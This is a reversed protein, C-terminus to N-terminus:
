WWNTWVPVLPRADALEYQYNPRADALEYQYYLDLMLYNM